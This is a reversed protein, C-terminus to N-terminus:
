QPMVSLNLSSPHAADHYIVNTAKVWHTGSEPSQTTNLNRDWRPFNSSSVDVRLRHGALFVNSTPWMDLKVKYVQGPTLFSAKAYSNRYRMRVIGDAINHAMGDPAVDVLVATFDTDPASSSAYLTMSVPGTVNLNKQLVPTSYVLVDSRQEDPRQDQVGNPLDRGDCCMSGGLTPVPNGPDYIYRDSDAKAAVGAVQTSLSGNGAAGNARGESHLYYAVRKSQPPPWTDSQRWVGTGMEYYRVKKWQSVANNEPPERLIHNYWDLMAGFSDFASQKGFDFSGVRTGAASHGGAVIVLHDDNRAADTGGDAKVGEYNRITGELFLDYWGGVNFVPVKIRSYDKDIAWQQWYADDTPHALWDLYWPELAKLGATGGIAPASLTTYNGLPLISAYNMPNTMTMRGAQRLHENGTGHSRAVFGDASFTLEVQRLLENGAVQSAWSQAFYQQLAGNQYAWDAYYDDSTFTPSIGALHPPADLAALWQTAGVYSGGWMGVKGNSKPLKAAWEVSDYGDQIEYKFPYWVGPSNYRGRVDMNVMIFGREAGRMGASITGTVEKNYPTRTMLVPYPGPGDPTFVDARLKVGDRMPVPVNFQVQIGPHEGAVAPRTSLTGKGSKSSSCMTVMGAATALCVLLLLKKMFNRSERSVLM